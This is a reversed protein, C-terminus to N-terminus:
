LHRADALFHLVRRLQDRQQGALRQGMRQVHEALHGARQLLSGDESFTYASVNTEVCLTTKELSQGRDDQVSPAFSALGLTLFLFCRVMM